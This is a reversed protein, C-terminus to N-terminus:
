TVVKTVSELLLNWLAVQIIRVQRSSLPLVLPSCDGKVAQRWCLTEMSRWGQGLVFSCVVVKAHAALPSQSTVLDGALLAQNLNYRGAGPLAWALPWKSHAVISILM